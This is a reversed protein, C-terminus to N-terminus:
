FNASDPLFLFPQQSGMCDFSSDARTPRSGRLDESSQLLGKAAEVGERINLQKFAQNLREIPSSSKITQNQDNSESAQQLKCLRNKCEFPIPSAL